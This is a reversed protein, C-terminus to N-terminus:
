EHGDKQKMNRIHAQQVIDSFEKYNLSAAGILFGDCDDLDYYSMANHADVSGGYLLRVAKATKAGYLSAIQERIYTFAKQMDDPKSKEGQFTSIAWVPEYAIVMDEIEAATLHAVATTLQDHLVQRTEGAAREQKTEGICLIPTIENRVCAQVKDRVQELTEGFYIRRASHGIISYHVMDKLMAFSVEGTQPGEDVAFADQASLRFKRRDIEMSVPHLSLFTPALVVEVDRHTAIHQHLRNVLLSSQQVNLHMKWNGVILTRKNM